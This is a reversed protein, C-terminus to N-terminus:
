GFTRDSCKQSHLLCTTVLTNVQVEISLQSIYGGLECVTIYNKMEMEFSGLSVFLLDFRFFVAEVM